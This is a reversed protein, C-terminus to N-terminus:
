KRSFLHVWYTTGEKDTAYGTGINTFQSQMINEKHGQSNMWGDVTADAKRYGKAINEGYATWNYHFRDLMQGVSGYTPSQHAFYHNKAMDEAKKQAIASLEKDMSLKELKQQQREKNVLNVTQIALSEEPPEPISYTKEIYRKSSTDYYIDGTQRKADFEMARYIFAAMEGRTVPENPAFEGGDKTTTIGLEAITTIYRHFGYSEPVDKFAIRDNDDIIIDYSLTIVKAMQGRTLSSNPHFAPGDSFIDRQTLARIYQYAFHGSSVDKFAPIFDDTPKARIALAIIKASQARTVPQDLRYTGDDYGSIVGADSIADIPAHAWHTTPVDIFSKAQAQLSPSSFLLTAAFATTLLQKKMM